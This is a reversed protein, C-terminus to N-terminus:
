VLEGTDVFHQLLPLLDAVQERTLHMRTTLLVEDPIPYPVWGTTDSTSVGYARAKSAMIQPSADDVGFWIADETALSSKQISCKEGNRDNFNLLAFGRNTKELKMNNEEGALGQIALGQIM